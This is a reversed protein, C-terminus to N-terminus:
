LLQSHKHLCGSFLEDRSNISAEESRHMIHYKETLCLRCTNNSPKYASTRALTRWKIDPELGEDKLSWVYGALKTQNRKDPYKFSSKHNSYRSKWKPACVGIYKMVPKNPANVEAQYVVGEDCCRNGEMVCINTGRCNCNPKKLDIKQSLIKTNHAAIIKGLNPM